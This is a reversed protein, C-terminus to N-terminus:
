RRVRTFGPKGAMKTGFCKTAGETVVCSVDAKVRIASDRDVRSLKPIGGRGDPLRPHTHLLGFFTAGPPCAIKIDVATPTGQTVPGAVVKGRLNCLSFGIENRPLRIAM